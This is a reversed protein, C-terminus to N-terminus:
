VAPRRGGVRAPGLHGFGFADDAHHAGVVEVVVAVVAELDHGDVRDLGDGVRRLGGADAALGRGLVAEDPLSLEVERLAGLGVVSVISPPPGCPRRGAYSFSAVSSAPPNTAPAALSLCAHNPRIPMLTPPRPKKRM